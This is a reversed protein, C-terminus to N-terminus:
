PQRRRCRKDLESSNKKKGKAFTVKHDFFNLSRGESAQKCQEPTLDTDSTTRRQEIDKSTHDHMGCFVQNKPTQNPM